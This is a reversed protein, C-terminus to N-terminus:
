RASGATRVRAAEARAILDALVLGWFRGLSRLTEQWEAEAEPTARAAGRFPPEAGLITLHGARQGDLLPGLLFGTLRQRALEPDTAGGLIPRRPSPPLSLLYPELVLFLRSLEWAALPIRIQRGVRGRGLDPDPPLFGTVATLPEGVADVDTFWRPDLRYAAGLASVTALGPNTSKGVYLDRLTGYPVGSHDAAERLNGGHAEDVLHRIQRTLTTPPPRLPAKPRGPRRLRPM